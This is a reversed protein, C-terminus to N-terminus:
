RPSIGRLARYLVRAANVADDKADHSRGQKELQLAELAGSLGKSKTWGAHLAVVLKADIYNASLPYPVRERECQVSFQEIDFTGFSAWPKNGADYTVTLWECAKRFSRGAQAMAPTIGTIDTCFATVESRTPRVLISDAQDVSGTAMNLLCAGIQIVDRPADLERDAATTAEVDLVLMLDLSLANAKRYALGSRIHSLVTGPKM